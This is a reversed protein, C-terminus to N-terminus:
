DRITHTIHSTQRCTHSRAYRVDRREMGDRRKVGGRMGM